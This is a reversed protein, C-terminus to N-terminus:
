ARHQWYFTQSSRSLYCAGETAIASRCVATVVGSSSGAGTVSPSNFGSVNPVGAGASMRLMENTVNHGSSDGPSVSFQCTCAFHASFTLRVTAKCCKFAWSDDGGLLTDQSGATPDSAPRELAYKGVKKIGMQSKKSKDKQM